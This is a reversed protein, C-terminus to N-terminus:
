PSMESTFFCNCIDAIWNNIDVIVNKMDLIWNNIDFFTIISILFEYGPFSYFSFRSAMCIMEFQNRSCSLSNVIYPRWLWLDWDLLAVNAHPPVPSECWPCIQQLKTILDHWYPGFNWCSTSDIGPWLPELGAELLTDRIIHCTNQSHDM